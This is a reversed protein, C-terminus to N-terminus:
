GGQRGPVPGRWSPDMQLESGCGPCRTGLVRAANHHVKHTPDALAAKVANGVVKDGLHVYAALAQLATLRVDPASDAVMAALKDVGAPVRPAARALAWGFCLERGQPHILRAFQTVAAKRVRASSDRMLRLLHAKGRASGRLGFHLAAEARIRANESHSLAVDVRFGDQGGALLKSTQRRRAKHWGSDLRGDGPGKAAYLRVAETVRRAFANDPANEKLTESVMAMMGRSLLKRANHLRSKVTGLPEETFQAIQQQTYGDIYYLTTALREARPLGQVAALVRQGLESAELAEPPTPGRARPEAQTGLPCTAVRRVRSLRDCFKFVVRRFWGPFAAPQRLTLLKRYAEVFAEQAADEALHFDGLISYAYGFAMDQFRRVIQGFARSDGALSRAILSELPEM